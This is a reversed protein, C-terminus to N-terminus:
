KSLIFPMPNSYYDRVMGREDGTMNMPYTRQQEWTELPMSRDKPYYEAVMYQKNHEHFETIDFIICFHEDSTGEDLIRITKIRAKMKPEFDYEGDRIKPTYEVVKGIYDNLNSRSLNIVTSPLGYKVSLVSETNIRELEEFSDVLISAVPRQISFTDCFITYVEQKDKEKHSQFLDYYRSYEYEGALFRITDILNYITNEIM